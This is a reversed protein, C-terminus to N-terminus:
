RTTAENHTTQNCDKQFILMEMITLMISNKPKNAAKFKNVKHNEKVSHKQVEPQEPAKGIEETVNYPKVREIIVGKPSIVV